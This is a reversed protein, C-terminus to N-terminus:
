LLSIAVTLGGAVIAIAGAFRDSVGRVAGSFTGQKIGGAAQVAGNLFNAGCKQQIAGVLANQGGLLISSSLGPAYLCDSEYNFYNTLINRTCTTCLASSDMDPERFLFALNNTQFTTLNAVIGNDARRSLAASALAGKIGASSNGGSVVCYKGSDDKSCIAERLPTLVYLVDYTNRLQQNPNSTLENSCASYFDALKGRILSDPCANAASGTCLSDVAGTVEATSPSSTASGGPGFNQTAEILSKTCSTLSDDKNFATIFDNCGSSLGSPILPN